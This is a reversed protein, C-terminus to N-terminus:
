ARALARHVLEILAADDFPKELFGIAGARMAQKQMGPYAHASIFIIPVRCHQRVLEDQLELGSMGGMRVDTIVCAFDSSVDSRLLEEASTFARAKFGHSRLLSALSSRVSEDDDVIAIASQPERAPM